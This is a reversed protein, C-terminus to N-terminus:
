RSEPTARDMADSDAVPLTLTLGDPEVAFSGGLERALNAVLRFAFGTGLLSGDQVEDEIACLADLSRGRLAAPLDVRVTGAHEGGGELTIAIEEDRTAASLVTAIMRALLRELTRADADALVEGPGILLHAGRLASLPGLDGVVHEVLARVAVRGPSLSLASGEIRAALDLDDIAGLLDGINRRIEAAYGRYVEPVPGLLQTDIMEAFGAIANAPTRLEHVLQRLSDAAIAPRPIGEEARPRRANGRYGTFRGTRPDFVPVGSIRWSGAVPSVGGIELRADRFAARQRFAGIVGGDTQALASPRAISLGILPARDAGDIWRLLGTADTEFRFLAIDGRVRRRSRREIRGGEAGRHADIRAVVDAIRFPGTAADLPPSGFAAEGLALFGDPLRMGRMAQPDDPAAAALAPQPSSDGLVFDIPGFSDLARVVDGPLDRRHRLIARQGPRLSPLLAIWDDADLRATRLLPASVAFSDDLFVMMLARPPRAHELARASALRVAEPVRARLEGLRILAQPDVSRPGRGVLDVLQRWTAQAGFPTATDAALVTKM